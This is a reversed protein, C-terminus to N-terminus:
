LVQTLDWKVTKSNYTWKESGLGEGSLTLLYATYGDIGEGDQYKKNIFEMAKQVLQSASYTTGPEKAAALTPM